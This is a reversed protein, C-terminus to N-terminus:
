CSHGEGRACARRSPSGRRGGHCNGHSNLTKFAAAATSCPREADQTRECRPQWALEEASRWGASRRCCRGTRRKSGGKV